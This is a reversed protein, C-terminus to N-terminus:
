SASKFLPLFIIMIYIYINSYYADICSISLNPQWISCTREIIDLFVYLVHYLLNIYFIFQFHKHHSYEETQYRDNYM